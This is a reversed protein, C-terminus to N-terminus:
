NMMHKKFNSIVISISAAGSIFFQTLLRGIGGLTLYYQLGFIHMIHPILSSIVGSRLFTSCYICVVYILKNEMFLSFHISLSFTLFSVIIMTPRFGFKDVSIAWIPNAICGLVSTSWAYNKQIKENVGMKAIYVRSTSTEFWIMFPMIGVIIINKWFRWSKFAKKIKTKDISNLTILKQTNRNQNKENIENNDYNQNEEDNPKSEEILPGNIEGVKTEINQM